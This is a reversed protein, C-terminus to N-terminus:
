GALYSSLILAAARGGALAFLVKVHNRWIDAHLFYPHLPQLSAERPWTL